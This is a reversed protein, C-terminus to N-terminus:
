FVIVDTEKGDASRFAAQISARAVGLAVHIKNPRLWVTWLLVLLVREGRCSTREELKSDVGLRRRSVKHERKNNGQYKSHANRQQRGAKV